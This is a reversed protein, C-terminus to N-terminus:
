LATKDHRTSHTSMPSYQTDNHFQQQKQQKILRYNKLETAFSSAAPCFIQLQLLCFTWSRYSIYVHHMREQKLSLNWKARCSMSDLEHMEAYPSKYVVLHLHTSRTSSIKLCPEAQGVHKHHAPLLCDSFM